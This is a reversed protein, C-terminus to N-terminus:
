LEDWELSKPLKNTHLFERAARLAQVFTIVEDNSRSMPERNLFFETEANSDIWAVTGRSNFGPHEESPTFWVYALMDRVLISMLPFGSKAQGSRSPIGSTDRALWFSNVKAGDREHRRMLANELESETAVTSSGAFDNITMVM